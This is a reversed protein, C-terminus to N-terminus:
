DNTHEKEYILTDYKKHELDNVTLGLDSAFENIAKKANKEEQKNSALIELELYHGLNHVQDYCININKYSAEQRVKNIHLEKHFNVNELINKIIEPNEVKTELELSSADDRKRKLTIWSDNNIKRIRIVPDGKIINFGKTENTVFISDDQEVTKFFVIQMEKLKKLVVKETEPLLLYKNEVEFM